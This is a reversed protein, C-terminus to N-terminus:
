ILIIEVWELPALELNWCNQERIEDLLLSMFLYKFDGGFCFTSKIYREM